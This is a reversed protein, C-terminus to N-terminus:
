TELERSPVLSSRSARPVALSKDVISTTSPMAVALAVGDGAGGNTDNMTGVHPRGVSARVSSASTAIACPSAHSATTTTSATLPIPSTTRM